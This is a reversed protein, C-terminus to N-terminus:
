PIILNMGARLRNPDSLRHRNAVLIRRWHREDGYYKRTIGYLTEGSRVIHIRGPLSSLDLEDEVWGPDPRNLRDAGSRPRTGRDAPQSTAPPGACGAGVILLGVVVRLAWRAGARRRGVGDFGGTVVRAGKLAPWCLGLLNDSGQSVM